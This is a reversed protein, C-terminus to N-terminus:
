KSEGKAAQSRSPTGSTPTQAKRLLQQLISFTGGSSSADFSQFSKRVASNSSFPATSRHPDNSRIAPLQNHLHKFRIHM